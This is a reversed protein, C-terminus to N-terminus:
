KAPIRVRRGQTFDAPRLNENAGLLESVRVGHRQATKALDEGPRLTYWREGAAPPPRVGVRQGGRVTLPDTEPNLLCFTTLDMRFKRLVDFLGEDELLTYYATAYRPAGPPIVIVQGAVYRAPNLYPNAALLEDLLLGNREAIKSLTEGKRIAYFSGRDCGSACPVRIRMNRRLPVAKNLERLAQKGVGFKESLSAYTDGAKVSYHFFGYPCQTTM